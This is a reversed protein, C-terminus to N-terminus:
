MCKRCFYITDDPENLLGECVSCYWKDCTDCAIWFPATSESYELGCGACHHMDEMTEVTAAPSLIGSTNDTSNQSQDHSSKKKQRTLAAKAAGRKRNCLVTNLHDLWISM